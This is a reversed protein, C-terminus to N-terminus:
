FEQSFCNIYIMGSFLLYFVHSSLICSFLVSTKPCNTLMLIYDSNFCETHILLAELTAWHCLIQRGICSIHAQDRPRSSGRSFSIAVWELIRTPPIGHASSCSSHSFLLLATLKLIKILTLFKSNFYPVSVLNEYVLNWFFWGVICFHMKICQLVGNISVTLPVPDQFALSM